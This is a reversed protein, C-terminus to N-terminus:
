NIWKVVVVSLPGASGSVQVYKLYFLFEILLISVTRNFFNYQFMNPTTTRKWQLKGRIINKWKIHSKQLIERLPIKWVASLTEMRTRIVRENETRERAIERKSTKAVRVRTYRENCATQERVGNVWGNSFPFRYSSFRTFIDLFLVISLSAKLLLSLSLPLYHSFSTYQNSITKWTRSDYLFNTKWKSIEWKGKESDM